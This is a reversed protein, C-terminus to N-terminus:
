CGACGGTIIFGSTLLNTSITTSQTHGGVFISGYFNTIPVFVNFLLAYFNIINASLTYAGTTVTHTGSVENILPAMINVSRGAVINVDFLAQIDVNLLGLIKVNQLATITVNGLAVIHEDGYVTKHDSGVVQVTRDGDPYVEEFTGSKHYRHTREKGLTDDFEVVHGSESEYVHNYPYEAEYQLDPQWWIGDLAIPVITFPIRRTEKKEIIEHPPADNRALRNTAPEGIYEPYVGNPDSFGKYEPNLKETQLGGATGMIVLDQSFEGDRSFGFVWSGEVVGLPTQGIGDVAASTIPQMPFAWHLEDVAIGEGAEDDPAYFPSHIGLIRVRVRGLKLEDDSLEDHRDEVVGTWWFFGKGMFNKDHM